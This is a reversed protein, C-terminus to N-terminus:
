SVKEIPRRLEFLPLWMVREGEGGSEEGVEKTRERRRRREKALGAREGWARTHEPAFAEDSVECGDGWGSEGGM